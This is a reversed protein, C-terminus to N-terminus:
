GRQRGDDVVQAGAWGVGPDSIRVEERRRRELRDVPLRGVDESPAAQRQERRDEEGHPGHHRRRGLVDVRQDAPARDLADAAAADVHHHLEDHAVEHRQAVPGLEDADDEDGEGDGHGDAGHDAAGDGLAGGPAPDEVEVEGDGADGEDEEEDEQADLVGLVRGAVHEAADVEEAVGEEDGGDDGDEQGQGVAADLPGPGGRPGEDGQDEADEAERAEEHEFGGLEDGLGGHGHAHEGVARREAGEAEGEEM